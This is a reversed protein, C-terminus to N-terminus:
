IAALGGDVVHVEGTVYGAADSALYVATGAIEEPEAFRDAPTDDLLDARIEDNARVGETFETVVYGPAITNVRVDPAWDAALTKTMGAIAHKSATYPAQAPLGVVSGVSGINTVSGEGNRDTVRTAFERTCRFTGTANVDMIREWTETDLDTADGFFPNTGANNVLTDVPGFEAEATEFAREIDSEDTVDCVCAVAEGGNERIRSVTADLADESRAVPVVAAGADAMAVAIAEGIGRSGGTVVAVSGELSFLDLAM